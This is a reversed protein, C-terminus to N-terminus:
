LLLWLTTTRAMARSVSGTRHHESAESLLGKKFSMVSSRLSLLALGFPLSELLARRTIRYTM